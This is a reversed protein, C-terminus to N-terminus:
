ELSYSRHFSLGNVLNRLLEYYKIHSIKQNWYATLQQYCPNLRYFEMEKNDSIGPNMGIIACGREMQNHNEMEFILCRPLIGEKINRSIGQCNHNCNVLTNGIKTIENQIFNIDIM